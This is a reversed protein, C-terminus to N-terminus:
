PSTEVFLWLMNASWAQAQAPADTSHRLGGRWIMGPGVFHAMSPWTISREFFHFFFSKELNKRKCKQISQNQNYHISKEVLKQISTQGPKLFNVTGPQQISYSIFWTPQIRM